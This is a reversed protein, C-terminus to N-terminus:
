VSFSFRMAFAFHATVGYVYPAMGVINLFLFLFVLSIIFLPGGGFWSAQYPKMNAGVGSCFM